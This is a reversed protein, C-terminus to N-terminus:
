EDAPAWPWSNQDWDYIIGTTRKYYYKCYLYRSPNNLRYALLRYFVDTGSGSQWFYFGAPTGTQDGFYKENININLLNNVTSIDKCETSLTVAPNKMGYIKWAAFIMRMNNICAEGKRQEITNSYMPIAIAALIGIIIIVVLLELLTFAINKKM